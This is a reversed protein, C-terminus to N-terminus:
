ETTLNGLKGSDVSFLIEEEKSGSFLIQVIQKYSKLIPSVTVVNGHM